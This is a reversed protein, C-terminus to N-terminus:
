VVHFLLKHCAVSYQALILLVLRELLDNATKKFKSNYLSKM